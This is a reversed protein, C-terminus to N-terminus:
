RARETKRPRVHGFLEEGAAAMEITPRVDGFRALTFRLEPGVQNALLLVGTTKGYHVCGAITADIASISAEGHPVDRGVVIVFVKQPHTNLRVAGYLLPEPDTERMVRESLTGIQEGIAAREQITLDCLDERLVDRGAASVPPLRERLEDADDPLEAHGAASIQEIFGELISALMREKDRIASGERVHKGAAQVIKADAIGNCGSFSDRMATYYGFLAPEASLTRVDPERLVALRADLYQVLDRWTRLYSAVYLFDAIGMLTVPTRAQLRAFETGDVDVVSEFRSELLALGHRARIEGPQFRVHGRLGHECWYERAKLTTYAGGLQNIAKGVTNRLWRHTGAEDRRKEQAKISVVIAEDRHVLLLDCVEKEAKGRLYKPSLFVNERMLPLSVLDRVVREANMTRANGSKHPEVPPSM